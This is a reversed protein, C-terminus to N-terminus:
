PEGEYQCHLHRFAFFSSANTHQFYQARRVLDALWFAPENMMFPEKLEAHLCVKANARLGASRQERINLENPSGLNRSSKQCFYKSFISDQHLYSNLPKM